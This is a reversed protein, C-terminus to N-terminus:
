TEEAEEDIAEGTAEIDEGMGEITNCASLGAVFILALFFYKTVLKM